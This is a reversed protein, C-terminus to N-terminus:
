EEIIAAMAAGVEIGCAKGLQRMTDVWEVAVGQERALAIVPTTVRSEADRAVYLVKAAAQQLAKTTQNTGITRKKALRIRDLSM